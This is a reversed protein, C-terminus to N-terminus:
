NSTREMRRNRKDMEKDRRENEWLRRLIRGRVGQTQSTQMNESM